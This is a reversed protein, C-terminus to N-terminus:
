RNLTTVAQASPAVHCAIAGLALGVLAGGAVDSPHHIKVHVRSWGVLAGVVFWPWRHRRGQTYVMAAFMGASAHGSPFSSTRPIRLSHPRDGDHTPRARDFSMKIPGNVIASELGIEIPFKLLGQVTIEDDLLARAIGAVVWILSHDGWNSLSYFLRDAAPNGRLRDAWGDVVDDFREVAPHDLISM